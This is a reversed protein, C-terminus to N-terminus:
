SLNKHVDEDDQKEYKGEDEVRIRLRWIRRDLTMDETLQLQTMDQRTMEGWYKKTRDRGRDSEGM